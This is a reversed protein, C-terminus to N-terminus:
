GVVETTEANCVARLTHSAEGTFTIALGGNTTDASFAFTWSSAGADPTGLDAQSFSGQLATAAANAGREIAGKFEIAKADGTANERVSCQGRVAFMSANPLIIQNTTSATSNNTTMAEPTANTTDSRLIFQRRQADGQAAFNGSAIAHAGYISRATAGSGGASSYDGGAANGSGGPIFSSTGTASNSSGGGVASSDGSATNSNGGSVTAHSQSATNSAGGGVTTATATAANTNGGVVVSNTGSATNSTGAGIFTRTGSAVQAASARDRQFDVATSGRKNGGTATNDPTQNLTVGTGKPIVAADVNSAANTATFTVAPVTANPASTNVGETWNSLSSGSATITTGTISLGSGAELWTVAGASDDWFLIRDANPDTLSAGTGGDGLAVDTGGPNYYDTGATATSLVGSTVKALGNGTARKLSKGTTSNFLVIEGDVSTATNTSADGGGTGAGITTRVTAADADDLITKAFSTLEAPKVASVPLTGTRINAGNITPDAASAVLVTIALLFFTLRKM